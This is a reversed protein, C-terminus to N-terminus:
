STVGADMLLAARYATPSNGAYRHFVRNFQSFSSFGASDAVDTIRLRPDSLLRKAKEGRVRAVFGTFTIGTTQKFIKCFYHRSVHV